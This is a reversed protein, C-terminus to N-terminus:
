ISIQLRLKTPEALDIIDPDSPIARFGGPNAKTSNAVSSSAWAASRSISPLNTTTDERHCRGKARVARSRRKTTPSMEGDATKKTTMKM